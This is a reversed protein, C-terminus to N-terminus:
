EGEVLTWGTKYTFREDFLDSTEWKGPVRQFEYVGNRYRQPVDAECVRGALMHAKAWEWSGEAPAHPEPVDPPKPEGTADVIVETLFDRLDTLGDTDLLGGIDVNFFGHCDKIIKYRGNGTEYVTTTEKKM